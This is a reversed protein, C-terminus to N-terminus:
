ERVGLLILKAKSTKITLNLEDIEEKPLKVPKHRRNGLQTSAIIREAKRIKERLQHILQNRESISVTM